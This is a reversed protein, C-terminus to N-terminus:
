AIVELCQCPSLGPPLREPDPAWGLQARAQDPDQQLEFGAVRIRGSDAQLPLIGALLRLLTSKGAGNAGILGRIEGRQLQLDLGQLVPQGHWHHRLGQVQLPPPSSVVSSTTM